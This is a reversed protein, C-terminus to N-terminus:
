QNTIPKANLCTDPIFTESVLLTHNNYTFLSRRSWTTRTIGYSRLSAPTSYSVSITGRTVRPNHFLLDGLPRNGLKRLFRLSGSVAGMPFVSRAYVWPEDHGWLIVERIMVYKSAPISLALAEDLRPKALSQRLVTVKFSEGAIARLRATLSSRDLLWRRLEM